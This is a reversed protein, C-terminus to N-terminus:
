LIEFYYYGRISKNFFKGVSGCTAMQFFTSIPVSKYYYTEINGVFTVALTGYEKDVIEDNEDVEFQFSFSQIANSSTRSVYYSNLSDTCDEVTLM